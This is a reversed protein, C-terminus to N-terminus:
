SYGSFRLILVNPREIAPVIAVIIMPMSTFLCVKVRAIGRSLIASYTLLAVGFGLPDTFQTYARGSGLFSRLDALKSFKYLHLSETFGDKKYKSSSAINRNEAGSLAM